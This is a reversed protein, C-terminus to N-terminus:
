DRSKSFIELLRIFINIIDLYIDISSDIANDITKPYMQAKHWDYGIYCSFIIVFFWNFINGNYGLLSAIIEVILGLLLSIFLSRGMGAFVNPFVVAAGTMVATVIGTAVMASVIDAGSFGPLCISLLAGIPLVILNYGVFSLVPNSSKMAIIMGVIASVFYGILFVIPNIRAFIEGCFAVIAANVIFGYLLMAGITLNYVSANVSDALGSRMRELKREKNNFM